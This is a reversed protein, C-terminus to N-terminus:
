DNSSVATGDKKHWVGESDLEVGGASTVGELEAWTDAYLMAFYKGSDTRISKEPILKIM